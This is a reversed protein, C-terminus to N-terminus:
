TMIKIPRQIAVNQFFHGFLGTKSSASKACEEDNKFMKLFCKVKLPKPPWVVQGVTVWLTDRSLDQEYRMKCRHTGQIVVPKTVFLELFTPGRHYVGLRENREM